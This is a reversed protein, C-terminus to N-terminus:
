IANKIIEKLTTDDCRGVIALRGQNKTTALSLKIKNIHQLNLRLLACSAIILGDCFGHNLLDLRKEITGRIDVSQLDARIYKIYSERKESSCGIKAGKELSDITENDRLVLCDSSCLGKTMAFVELGSPLPSPLDKASHIGLSVTKDLVCEDIEKTFFNTSGLVRLSTKQDRDGITELSTIEFEIEPYTIKIEKLVEDVQVLSLKSSRAAIKILM